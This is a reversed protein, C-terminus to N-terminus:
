WAPCEVRLGKFVRFHEVNSTAVAAGLRLATAAILCDHWGVGDPAAHRKLLVLSARLDHESPVAGDTSAILADIGRHHARGPTGVYLEALVVTHLLMRGAKRRGIAYERAGAVGRLLDICVTTDLLTDSM